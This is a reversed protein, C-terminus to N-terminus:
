IYIYGNHYSQKLKKVAVWDISIWSSPFIPSEIELNFSSKGCGRPVVMSPKVGAKSFLGNTRIKFVCGM